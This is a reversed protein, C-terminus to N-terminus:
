KRKRKKANTDIRKKKSTWSADTRKSRAGGSESPPRVSAQAREAAPPGTRAVSTSESM